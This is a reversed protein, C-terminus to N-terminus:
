RKYSWEGRRLKAFPSSGRNKYAHISVAVILVISAILATVSITHHLYWQKVAIAILAWVGVLAAERLNRNKILLLYLATAIVIMIITWPEPGMFGGEFRLSV